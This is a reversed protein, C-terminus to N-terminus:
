VTEGIKHLLALNTPRITPIPFGCILVVEQGPPISGAQLLTQDVVQVMKELSDVQPVLYPTVGWYINMVQYSSHDPTFALIPVEPRTKSMFLATRGSRTFVAVASVNRDKALEHAAQTIYYTDDTGTELGPNGHWHGWHPLHSEAQRIVADMMEVSQVPYKGSATEGSLMVADTGDFVANAVDTVEARTPRPNNIMSELMQTATIVVKNHQNAADIIQKQAIPVIEPPLEVGLDGRAVMVGDAADLVADLNDLAEPRELKAIIPIMRGPSYKNLASRVQDIDNKTRVFSAAIADIGLSIGFALDREDKGTFGPINIKAGPLNVGKHSKLIGGLEVRTKVRDRSVEEVRLELNGDDLLIRGGPSVSDILQPFDVPIVKPDDVSPAISLVLTQGKKIEVQDGPIIGTRIKPGQLDQLITISKGLSAAASRLRTYTQAHDEHSGHSFNLRAINMGAKFLKLITEEDRSAPGITVVIKASRTM